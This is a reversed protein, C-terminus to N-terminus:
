FPISISPVGRSIFPSFSQFNRPPKLRFLNKEEWCNQIELRLLFEDSITGNSMLGTHGQLVNVQDFLFSCSSHLCFNNHLWSWSITPRADYCVQVFMQGMGSLLHWGLTVDDNFNCFGSKQVICIMIYITQTGEAFLDLM